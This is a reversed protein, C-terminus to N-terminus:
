QFILDSANLAAQSLDAGLVDTFSVLAVSGGFLIVALTLALAHVPNDPEVAAGPVAAASPRAAVAAGVFGTVVITLDM